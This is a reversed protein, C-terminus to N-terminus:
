KKETKQGNVILEILTNISGPSFPAGENVAMLQIADFAYRRKQDAPWDSHDVGIGNIILTAQDAFATAHKGLDTTLNKIAQALLEVLPPALKEAAAVLLAILVPDM